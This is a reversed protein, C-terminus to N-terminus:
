PLKNKLFSPCCLEYSGSTDTLSLSFSFNPFSYFRVYTYSIRNVLYLIRIAGAEVWIELSPNAKSPNNTKRCFFHTWIAYNYLYIM